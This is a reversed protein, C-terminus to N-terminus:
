DKRNAITKKRCKDLLYNTPNKLIDNFDTDVPLCALQKVADEVIFILYCNNETNRFTYSYTFYKKDSVFVQNNFVVVSERCQNM